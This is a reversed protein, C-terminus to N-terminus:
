SLWTGVLFSCLVECACFLKWCDFLLLWYKQFICVANVAPPLLSASIAVGVLSGTNGGLISLAVGAGSPLAIAVGVGLGRLLGRRWFTMSFNNQIHKTNRRRSKVRSNVGWNDTTTRNNAHRSNLLAKFFCLKVLRGQMESTPWTDSSSGNAGTNYIPGAIIGSLFGTTCKLCFQNFSGSKQSAAGQFKECIQYHTWAFIKKQKCLLKKSISKHSLVFPWNSTSNNKNIDLSNVLCFVFVLALWNM